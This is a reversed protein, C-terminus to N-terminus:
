EPVISWDPSWDLFENAGLPYASSGDANMIWIEVAGGADSVYVIRSGDPSWVPDDDLGPRNTLRHANSGDADMVYIEPDENDRTSRFVIQTGDPSWDPVGDYFENETLRTTITTNVDVLYVERGGTVDSFYLLSTGDPSFVPSRDAAGDNFTIQEANSGDVDMVYIEFDGDRASYFALRQGDPSWSPELDDVANNTIQRLKSTDANIIFIEFDGDINSQFAMQRGDPSWAPKDDLAFNFTIQRLNSGGSDMVYIELDGDRDSSFAIQDAQSNQLAPPRFTPQIVVPQPTSAPLTPESEVAAPVEVEGGTCIITAIADFIASLENFTSISLVRSAGGAILAITEPDTAGVAIAYIETNLTRLNDAVAVPDDGETSGDGTVLLVIHPTADRGFDLRNQAMALGAAINRGGGLQAMEDIVGNLITPNDSLGIHLITSGAFQVIGLNTQTPSIDREAVWQSIFTKIATFDANTVSSSGDVLLVLDIPCGSATQRFLYSPPQPPPESQTLGPTAPLLALTTLAVLLLFLFRAFQGPM